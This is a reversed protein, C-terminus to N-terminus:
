FFEVGEGQFRRFVVQDAVKQAVPAQPNFYTSQFTTVSDSGFASGQGPFKAFILGHFCLLNLAEQLKLKVPHVFDNTFFETMNLVYKMGELVIEM